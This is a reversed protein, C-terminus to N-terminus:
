FEARIKINLRRGTLYEPVGYVNNEIDKVWNYSIVNNIGLINFIEVSIWSEQLKKLMGYPPRNKDNRSLLVKSFGIDLRRYPPITNPKEAYRGQGSLFYPMGTGIIMNLNLRFNPNGPLQDQLMAAFNVRRDTPRRLWGSQVLDGNDNLYNIKERTQLVSLTFWSELGKIFEGNIRNDVGWAYGESSNEAYYRVRINDFLYPILRDLHKYYAETSFKFKRNWMSVFRDTGAVMHWARQAKLQQNLVGSFNRLERFFGQQYYGGAALKIIKDKKKLSDPLFANHKKNPEWSFQIRPTVFIENNVQWWHSRLGLNLWMNRQKDLRFKNQLFGQLRFSELTNRSSVQDDLIISDTAFGFPPINYMASDNYRWEKYRDAIREHNLRIGYRFINRKDPKTFTGIHSFNLIRSQLRNRGHDLFYGFGLTKLPKGYTKSGMDRDLLSLQYAGEVDFLEQESTGTASLIWKFEKGAEPNFKFTLAGMAYDYNMQEAGAMGVDLQYAQSVTGFETRRSEPTLNYRNLALNGLFEVKWRRWLKRSLLTQVDAFNMRYAGQLDLSGTLLSNSFHRVGLVASTRKTKGEVSFSNLLLGATASVSFATPQIYEVDLVSSMKDGYQADFGGASFKLTKVLDPNIFSLGEQQGSSILQPRYIEIDNVYVLNEDYNGGRVSYQSSLESNSNAGLTKIISEIGGTTPNMRLDRPRIEDLFPTYEERNTIDIQPLIDMGTGEFIVRELQAQWDKPLQYGFIKRTGQYGFILNTVPIIFKGSNDTI